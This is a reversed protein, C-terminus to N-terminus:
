FLGLKFRVDILLNVKALSNLVLEKSLDSYIKNFDNQGIEYLLSCFTIKYSQSLILLTM